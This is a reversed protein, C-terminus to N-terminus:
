FREAQMDASEYRAWAARLVAVDLCRAARFDAAAACSTGPLRGSCWCLTYIGGAATLPVLWEAAQAGDLVAPLMAGHPFSSVGCTELILM